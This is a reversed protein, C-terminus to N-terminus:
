GYWDISLNMRDYLVKSYLTKFNKPIFARFNTVLAAKVCFLLSLKM